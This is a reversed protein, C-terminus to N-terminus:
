QIKFIYVFVNFFSVMTVIEEAMDDNGAELLVQIHYLRMVDVPLSWLEGLRYVAASFNHQLSRFCQLAFEHRMNLVKEMAKSANGDNSNGGNANGNNSKTTSKPNTNSNSQTKTKNKM